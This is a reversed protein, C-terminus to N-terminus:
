IEKNENSNKKTTYRSSTYRSSSIYIYKNSAKMDYLALILSIHKFNAICCM